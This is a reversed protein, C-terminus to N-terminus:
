GAFHDDFRDNTHSWHQIYTM